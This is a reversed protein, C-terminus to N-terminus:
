QRRWVNRASYLLIAAHMPLLVSNTILGLLHGGIFMGVNLGAAMIILFLHNGRLVIQGLRDSGHLRQTIKSAPARKCLSGTRRLHATSCCCQVERSPLGNKRRAVWEESPPVATDFLRQLQPDHKRSKCL